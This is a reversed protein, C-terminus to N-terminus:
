DLARLKALFSRAKTIAEERTTGSVGFLMGVKGKLRRIYDMDEPGCLRTWVGHAETLAAEIRGFDNYQPQADFGLFGETKIISAFHRDYGMCCHYTVGGYEHALRNNYPLFFEEFTAPSVAVLCDDGIQIGRPAWPFAFALHTRSWRGIHAEQLDYWELITDTVLDLFAHVARPATKIAALMDEYHWIQTAISWPGATDCPTLIVKGQTLENYCELRDLVAPCIGSKLLNPKAARLAQEPTHIAPEFFPQLGERLIFKSGFATALPGTGFFITEFAPTNALPLGVEDSAELCEIQNRVMELQLQVDFEVDHVRRLSESFFDPNHYTQGDLICQWDWAIRLVPTTLSYDGSWLRRLITRQEAIRHWPTEPM